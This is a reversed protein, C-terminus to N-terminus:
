FAHVHVGNQDHVVLLRHPLGEAFPEFARVEAALDEAGGVGLLREDEGILLGDIEGDEVPVEAGPVVAQAKEFVEIEEIRVDDGDHDGAVGVLRRREVRMRM